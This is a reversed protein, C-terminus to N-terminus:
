TGVSEMLGLVPLLLLILAMIQALGMNLISHWCKGPGEEAPPQACDRWLGIVYRLGYAYTSLMWTIDWLSSTHFEGAIFLIIVSEMDGNRAIVTRMANISNSSNSSNGRSTQAAARSSVERDQLLNSHLWGRSAQDVSNICLNALGNLLSLSGWATYLVVRFAGRALTTPRGCFMQRWPILCPNMLDVRSKILLYGQVVM